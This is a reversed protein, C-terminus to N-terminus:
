FTAELLQISQSIGAGLKQLDAESLKGKKNQKKMYDQTANPLDKALNYFFVRAGFFASVPADYMKLIEEGTAGTYEKIQYYAKQKKTIPRYCVALFQVFLDTEKLSSDMDIIEGATAEDLNPIFGYEVGGMIFRQVLRIKQNFLEQIQSAIEKLDKYPILKVDKTPLKCFIAVTAINIFDEDNNDEKVVSSYDLWQKLTIENLSTPIEIKM